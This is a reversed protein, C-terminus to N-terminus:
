VIKTGHVERAGTYKVLDMYNDKTIGGGPLIIIKDEAYAILEKLNDMNELAPSKGGETLVSNIGLEILKDLAAKKDEIEDFAMHFTISMPKAISVLEKIIKKDIKFDKIAGIVVGHSGLDKAIQIDYKMIELEEDNYIFNGGRPRIIVM